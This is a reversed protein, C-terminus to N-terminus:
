FCDSIELHDGNLNYYRFGSVVINAANALDAAARCQGNPVFLYFSDVVAAVRGWLVADEDSPEGRLVSAAMIFKNTATARDVVLIDPFAEGTATAVPTGQDDPTNVYTRWAPKDSNPFPFRSKAVAAILNHTSYEM